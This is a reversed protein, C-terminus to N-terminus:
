DARFSRSVPCVAAWCVRREHVRVMFPRCASPITACSALPKLPLLAAIGASHRQYHMHHRVRAPRRGPRVQFVNASPSNGTRCWSFLYHQLSFAAMISKRIFVVQSRIGGGSLYRCKLAFCLFEAPNVSPLPFCHRRVSLYRPFARLPRPALQPSAMQDSRPPINKSRPAAARGSLPISKGPAPGACVAREGPANRAVLAPLGASTVERM